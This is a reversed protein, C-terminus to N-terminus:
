EAVLPTRTVKTTDKGEIRLLRTPGDRLPAHIDGVEYAHADGPTLRYSRSLRVKGPQGDRPPATLEWDTMETEGAVQGYIAWTPGHDHPKGRKADRYAHACICFGLKPDEYLIRREADADPPLHEAIFSDDKLARILHQRVAERGDPGPDNELAARCDAVFEALPYAMTEEKRNPRTPRHKNQNGENRPARRPTFEM